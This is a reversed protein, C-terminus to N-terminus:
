TKICYMLQVNNPRVDSGVDVGSVRSADFGWNHGYGGGAGGMHYGTNGTNYYAGSLSLGTNHLM